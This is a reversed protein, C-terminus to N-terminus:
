LSPLAKSPELDDLAFRCGAPAEFMSLGSHGSEWDWSFHMHHHHFPWGSTSYAMHASLNSEDSSSLKGESVLDDAAELVDYAVETDVGIVRIYESRMLMAMFYATRRADLITAAGTCNYGDNECVARGLNDDGTQYYAIDLDNGEVHTGETHRLSDDLRGPTDGDAQGMDM